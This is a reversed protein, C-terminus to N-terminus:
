KKVDQSRKLRLIEFVGRGTQPMKKRKKKERREAKEDSLDEWKQWVNEQKM